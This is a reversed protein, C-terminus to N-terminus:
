RRHEFVSASLLVKVPRGDHIAPEYQQDRVFALARSDFAPSVSLVVCASEVRGHEDVIAEVVVVKRPSQRPTPCPDAAATPESRPSVVVQGRITRAPSAPGRQSAHQASVDLLVATEAAVVLLLLPLSSTLRTM